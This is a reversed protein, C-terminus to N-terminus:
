YSLISVPTAVGAWEYGYDSASIQAAAEAADNLASISQPLDYGFDHTRFSLVPEGEVLEQTMYILRHQPGAAMEGLSRTDLSPAVHSGLVAQDFGTREATALSASLNASAQRVQGALALLSNVAQFSGPPLPEGRSLFDNRLGQWVYMQVGGPQSRVVPDNVASQFLGFHGAFPNDTFPGAM